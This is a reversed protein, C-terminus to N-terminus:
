PTLWHAPSLLILVPLKPVFLDPSLSLSPATEQLFAVGIWATDEVARKPERLCSM